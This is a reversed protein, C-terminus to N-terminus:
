YAFGEPAIPFNDDDFLVQQGSRLSLTLGVAIKAAELADDLTTPVATDDLVCATFDRVETM